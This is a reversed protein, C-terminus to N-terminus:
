ESHSRKSQPPTVLALRFGDGRGPPPKKALGIFRPVTQASMVKSPIQPGPWPFVLAASRDYEAQRRQANPSRFKRLTAMKEACALTSDFTTRTAPLLAM